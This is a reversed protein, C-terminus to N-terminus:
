VVEIRAHHRRAGALKADRTLLPAGLEESLAVYAADYATVNSRLQWIRQIFPLHPYRRIPIDALDEIAHRGRTASLEGNAALRRLVQAVELDMLAPAHLSERAAQLRSQIGRGAMTGLLLEVVVSADLVIM